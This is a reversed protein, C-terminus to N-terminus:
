RRLEEALRQLGLWALTGAPRDGALLDQRLRERCTPAM